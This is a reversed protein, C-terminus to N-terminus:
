ASAPEERILELIFSRGALLEDQTLSKPYYRGINNAYWIQTQRFFRWLTDYRAIFRGNITVTGRGWQHELVFALSESGLRIDCEEAAREVPELADTIDFRLACGLDTVYVFSPPLEGSKRLALIANWDNEKALRAQMRDFLSILRELPISPASLLAREESAKYAEDWRVLSTANDHPTGLRWQEGPFLVVPSTGLSALYPTTARVRVAHANWFHNEQHCFRTFSAFPLVWRPSLAQVQAALQRRVKAAARRPLEADRPNGVWNAYGFQTMLLDIAGLRDRMRALTAPDSLRCDNLNLISGGPTAVHLWSDYGAVSENTIVVGPALTYPQWPLLEIVPYGLGECFAKVKGDPTKQFFIPTRKRREPPLRKLEAPSFHDPHEHSLWIHSFDFGEIRRESEVLLDWGNDFVAGALWPDCLIRAKGTDILVCAHNVFEITSEGTM